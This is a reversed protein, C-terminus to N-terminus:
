PRAGALDRAARAAEIRDDFPLTTDGVVQGTEHGKGAILVVDGPRAEALADQIAQARDVVVRANPGLGPAIDELISQPDESRPNDSTAYVLDSGACAARGMEPRKGRDRDGGCGFVTLLRGGALVPRLSALAGELADPTHSYDVLVTVDLCDQAAQVREMRGPVGACRAVGALATELPVELALACGIAVLANVLNFDGLLPVHLPGCGHPTALWAHTGTRDARVGSAELTDTTAVTPKDTGPRVKTRWVTTGRPQLRGSAPDDGNVVATGDTALLESFLRAKSAFYAEMTGHFDLHDRSFSTFGAAAFSTADVRRLDLGISSVEMAAFRCGADRAEALMRQLVPAEPTTHQTPVPQGAIEHGLTGIRAWPWGAADGISSLFSATTTKGNTGTLGVVPLSRSPDSWRAASLRALALRADPVQVTTVGPATEVEGEAVVAACPLARAFRRGDVSGGSIAVFVDEAGINRSDHDVGGVWRDVPGTVTHPGLSALLDHLRM